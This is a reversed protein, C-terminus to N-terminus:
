GGGGKRVAAPLDFTMTVTTGAESSAFTAKRSLKSILSAGIGLGPSDLHPTMGVGNDAVTVVLTPGEARARVNIQGGTRGRFAHLVSNGVAESVALSMDETALGLDRAFGVLATRAETVASPHPALTLAVESYAESSPYM